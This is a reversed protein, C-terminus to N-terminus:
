HVLIQTFWKELLLPTVGVFSNKSHLRSLHVVGAPLEIESEGVGIVKCGAALAASMGNWSDEFVLCESPKLGVRRAAELYMDPNPKPFEVEDGAISGAFFHEGIHRLAKGLLQRDTNTVVFMPIGAAYLETLLEKVGDYPESGEDLYKEVESLLMNKYFDFSNDDLQIGAHQACALLTDETSAGAISSYDPIRKGMSQSVVLTAAAWHKETDTMTGDMDWFIAKM